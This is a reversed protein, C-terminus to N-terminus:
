LSVMLIGAFITLCLLLKKVFNKEKFVVMGVLVAVVTKLKSIVAITIMQSGVCRYSFFLFMDGCFLFLGVLYIWYNKLDNKTILFKKNKFCEIAFFMCSFLFVFMLFWYQVQHSELYTTTYKDLVNSISTILTSALLMLLQIVNTKSKHSKNLLNIMVAGAVIIVAGVIQVWTMSEDFWFIGILFTIVTSLVTTLSVLSIDATKLVKLVCYWSFALLFGKLAFLWIFKSEIAVGFPIWIQALLFCLTTFMVLIASESSKELAKKKFINYFGILTAYLIAFLIYMKMILIIDSQRYLFLYFCM